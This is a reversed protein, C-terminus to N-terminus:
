AGFANPLLENLKYSKVDGDISACYVDMTPSFESLQQRCIGCPSINKPEGAIAIALFAREGAAIGACLAAREACITAGFSSNEVNCGTYIKGSAALLAAGVAFNSYPAYANARVEYALEILKELVIAV